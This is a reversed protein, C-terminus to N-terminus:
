SPERVLPVIGEHYCGPIAAVALKSSHRAVDDEVVGCLLSIVQPRTAIADLVFGSYSRRLFDDTILVIAHRAGSLGQGILKLIRDSPWLSVSDALELGRDALTGRLRLALSEDEYAYVLFLDRM